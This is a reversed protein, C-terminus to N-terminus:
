AERRGGRYIQVGDAVDYMLLRAEPNGYQRMVDLMMPEEGTWPYAFVVDFEELPRGLEAYGPRGEGITGLRGDRSRPRWEYGAPLFSGVVFQAQSGYKAALGRAGRVLNPDLEIGCADFGLLSATITVVGLASGWELFRLGPARLTLLTQLVRNSDAPVFPHWTHWRVDADFRSWMQWGEDFLTTLRTRLDPEAELGDPPASHDM